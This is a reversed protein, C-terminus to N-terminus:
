TKLVAIPTTTPQTSGGAPEVSIAVSDGEALGQLARNWREAGASGQPGLGASLVAAPRVLWLQYTRGSPLVPLGAALVAARSGARVVTATGGGTVPSSVRHADPDSVISLVQELQHRDADAQVLSQHAQDAQYWGAGALGSGVLLVAAAVALPRRLLRIAASRSEDPRAGHRGAGHRETGHRETGHRETGHRETGHREAGHREAGRPAAEDLATDATGDLHADLDLRAHDGADIAPPEQATQAIQGMVRLRLGVPPTHAVAASLAAATERLTRVEERCTECTVLHNEFSRRELEDDLADAAYAGTLQHLDSTV